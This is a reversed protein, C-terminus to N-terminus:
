ELKKDNSKLYILGLALLAGPATIHTNVTNGERISSCKNDCNFNNSLISQPPNMIKGGEIFRILREELQLDKISPLNAGKGLNVL